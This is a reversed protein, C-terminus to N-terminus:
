NSILRESISPKKIVPPVIVDGKFVAGLHLVVLLLRLEDIVSQPRLEMSFKHGFIYFSFGNVDISSRISQSEEGDWETDVRRRFAMSTTM